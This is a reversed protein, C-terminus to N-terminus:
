TSAVVPRPADALGFIGKRVVALQGPALPIPPSTKSDTGSIYLTRDVYPDGKLFASKVDGSIILWHVNWAAICFLLHQSLRCGTPADRRLKGSLNAHDKFGPVVLRASPRKELNNTETRLGDAKDTLVFRPRLIKDTERQTLDKRIEASKLMSLLKLLKMTWM